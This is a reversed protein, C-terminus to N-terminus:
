KTLRSYIRVYKETFDEREQIQAAFSDEDVEAEINDQVKLFSEWYKTVMSLRLNVEIPDPAVATLGELYTGVKSLANQLSIRKRLLTEIALAM